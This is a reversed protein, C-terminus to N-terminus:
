QSKRVVGATVNGPMIEPVYRGGRVFNMLDLLDMYRGDLFLLADLINQHVGKQIGSLDLDPFRASQREAREEADALKRKLHADNDLPQNQAIIIVKPHKLTSEQGRSECYCVHNGRM